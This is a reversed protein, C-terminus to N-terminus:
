PSAVALGLRLVEAAQVAAAQAARAPTTSAIHVLLGDRSSCSPSWPSWTSQELDAATGAAGEVAAEADVVDVGVAVADDEDDVVEDEDEDDKDVVPGSSRHM